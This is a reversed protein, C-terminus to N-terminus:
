VSKLKYVDVQRKLLSQQDALYTSYDRVFLSVRSFLGVGKKSHLEQLPHKERELCSASFFAASHLLLFYCIFTSMM